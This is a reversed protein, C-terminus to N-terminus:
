SIDSTATVTDSGLERIVFKSNAEVQPTASVSVSFAPIITGAGTVRITGTVVSKGTASTSATTLATSTAVSSSVIQPTSATLLAGKASVSKYALSSITATGLFGFGFTGSTTSMATLDFECTFEYTKNATANFAGGGGSGVNFLKQLATGASGVYASSLVMFSAAKQKGDLQTQANSSLSNIFQLETNSVSGDAIKVADIGSAVKANNVVGNDITWVTGSGSVTIDGKDGDTVGGTIDSLMAFTQDSSPKDPFKVIYPETIDDINVTVSIESVDLNKAFFLSDQFVVIGKTPSVLDDVCGFDSTTFRGEATVSQLDITAVGTEGNVSTVGSGGGADFV